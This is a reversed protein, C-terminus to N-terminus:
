RKDTKTCSGLTQLFGSSRDLLGFRSSLWELNVEGGSIFNMDVKDELGLLRGGNVRRPSHTPNDELLAENWM